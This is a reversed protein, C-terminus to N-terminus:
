CPNSKNTPLSRVFNTRHYPLRLSRCPRFTIPDSDLILRSEFSRVVLSAAMVLMLALAVESIVLSGQVRRSSFPRSRQRREKLVTNFDVTFSKLVQILVM